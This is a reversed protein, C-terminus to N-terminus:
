HVSSDLSTTVIERVEKSNPYFGYGINGYYVGNKQSPLGNSIFLYERDTLLPTEAALDSYYYYFIKKRNEVYYTYSRGIDEGNMVIVTDGVASQAKKTRYPSLTKTSEEKFDISWAEDSVTPNSSHIVETIEVLTAFKRIGEGGAVSNFEEIAVSNFDILKVLFIQSGTKSIRSSLPVEKKSGSGFSNLILVVIFIGIKVNKM